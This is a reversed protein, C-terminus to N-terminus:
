WRGFPENAPRTPLFGEFIALIVCQLARVIDVTSGSELLRLLRDSLLVRREGLVCCRIYPWRLFKQRTKLRREPLESREDDVNSRENSTCTVLVRLGVDLIILFTEQLVKDLRTHRGLCPEQM